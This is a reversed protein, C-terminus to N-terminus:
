PRPRGATSVGRRALTRPRDHSLTASCFPLAASADSKFERNCIPCRMPSTSDPAALRATCRRLQWIDAEARRVYKLVGAHRVLRVLQLALTSDLPEMHPLQRKDGLVFTPCGRTGPRFHFSGPPRRRSDDDRAMAACWFVWRFGSTMGGYNRDEQPRLGILFILCIVSVSLVLLALERRLQDPSALWM